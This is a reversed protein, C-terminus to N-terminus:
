YHLIMLFSLVTFNLTNNVLVGTTRVTTVIRDATKATPKVMDSNNTPNVIADATTYTM